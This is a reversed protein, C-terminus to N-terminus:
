DDDREFRAYSAEQAEHDRYSRGERGAHGEREERGERGEHREHSGERGEREWGEDEEHERGEHGERGRAPEDVYVYEVPENTSSAESEQAPIAFSSAGASALVVSEDPRAEVFAADPTSLLGITSSTLAVLAIAISLGAVAYALAIQRTM